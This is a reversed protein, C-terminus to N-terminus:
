AKRQVRKAAEATQYTKKEAILIQIPLYAVRTPSKLNM